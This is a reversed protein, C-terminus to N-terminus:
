VVRKLIQHCTGELTFYKEYLRKGNSLLSAYRSDTISKLKDYLVPIEDKKMLVAFQNWDLEDQWPLYFQDSIVVPVSNLQFAEYLRFSNLGYGRPCLLFKSRAAVNLYLNVDDKKVAAEWNKLNIFTDEKHNIAAWIMTRIQHTSSGVFSCLLDKQKKPPNPIKSCVLPIPIGGTNGGANFCLTDPPLAEKIADDHQSVTFYSKNRDLQNLLRQLGVTRNETYCATWSVPIYERDSRKRSSNYYSFFYDELYPGTHYPPYPGHSAKIRYESFDIM